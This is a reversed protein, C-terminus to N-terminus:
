KGHRKECRNLNELLRVQDRDHQKMQRAYWDRYAQRLDGSQGIKARLGSRVLTDTDDLLELWVSIRQGSTHHVTTPASLDTVPHLMKAM